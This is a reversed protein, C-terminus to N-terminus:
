LSEDPINFQPDSRDPELFLRHSSPTHSPDPNHWQREQGVHLQNFRGPELIRPTTEGLCVALPGKEFRTDAGDEHLVVVGERCIGSGQPPQMELDRRARLVLKNTHQPATNEVNHDIYPVAR